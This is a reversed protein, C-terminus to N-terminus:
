KYPMSQDVGTGSPLKNKNEEVSAKSGGRGSGAYEAQQNDRYM